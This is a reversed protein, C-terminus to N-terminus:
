NLFALTKLEETIVRKGQKIDKQKNSFLYSINTLREIPIKNFDDYGTQRCAIAKIKDIRMRYETTNTTKGYLIDLWGGVAGFVRKRAEQLKLEKKNVDSDLVDCLHQLEEIYLEKSSEVGYNDSLMQKRDEESIGLKICLTHYKRILGAKQKLTTKM